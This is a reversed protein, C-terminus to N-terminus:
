WPWWWWFRGRPRESSPPPPPPEPNYMRTELRDYVRVVVNEGIISVSVPLELASSIQDEVSGATRATVGKTWWIPDLILKIAAAEDPRTVM